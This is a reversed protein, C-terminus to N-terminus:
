SATFAGLGGFGCLRLPHRLTLMGGGPFGIRVATSLPCQAAGGNATPRWDGAAFALRASAGPVITIPRPLAPQPLAMVMKGPVLRLVTKGSSASLTVSPYGDLVCTAGTSVFTATLAATGAAGVETGLSGAFGRASCAPLEGAYTSLKAAPVLSSADVSAAAPPISCLLFPTPDFTLPTLLSGGAGPVRVRVKAVPRCAVGSANDALDTFVFGARAGPALVVRKPEAFAAGNGHQGITTPVVAGSASLFTLAPHGEVFCTTRAINALRLVSVNLGGANSGGLGGVALHSSTCRQVASSSSARQVTAATAQPAAALVLAATALAVLGIGCPACNDATM